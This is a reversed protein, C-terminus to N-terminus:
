RKHDKPRLLSVNRVHTGSVTYGLDEKQIQSDIDEKKKRKKRLMHFYYELFIPTVLKQRLKKFTRLVYLPAM